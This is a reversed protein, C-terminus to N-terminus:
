HLHHDQEGLHVPPVEKIRLGSGFAGEEDNDLEDLSRRPDQERLMHGDTEERYAAGLGSGSCLRFCQM